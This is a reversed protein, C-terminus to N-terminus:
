YFINIPGVPNTQPIFEQGGYNLINDHLHKCDGLMDLAGSRHNCGLIAKITDGVEIGVVPGNLYLTNVEVRLITRLTLVGDDLWSVMGGAYKIVPQANWGGALTVRNGEITTVLGESTAAVLSAKCSPGYLVHPCSIQYNRRLGPRRMSTSVPECNFTTENPPHQVGLVRGTWIVPFDDDVDDGIHGERIILNIVQAPPYGIFLLSLDTGQQMNVELMAKDLTGSSSIAERRVAIPEYTVSVVSGGITEDRVIPLEGDTYGFPGVAVSSELGEFFPDDADGAGVFLFLSIPEGQARSEERFPFSM